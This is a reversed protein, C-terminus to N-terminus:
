LIRGHGEREVTRRCHDIACCIYDGQEECDAPVCISAEVCYRGVACVVCMAGRSYYLWLSLCPEQLCGRGIDDVQGQTTVCIVSMLVSGLHWLVM